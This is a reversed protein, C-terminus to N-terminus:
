NDRGCKLQLLPLTGHFSNSNDISCNQRQKESGSCKSVCLVLLLTLLLAFRLLPLLMLLSLGCLLLLMGLLVLVFLLLLLMLLGCLLLMLMLLGRLLLMLLLSVFRRLTLSFRLLAVAADIVAADLGVATRGIPADVGAADWLVFTLYVATEALRAGARPIVVVAGPTLAAPIVAVSHRLVAELEVEPTVVV